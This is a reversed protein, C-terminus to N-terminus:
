GAGSTQGNAEAAASTSPGGNEENPDAAAAHVQELLQKQQALLEKELKDKARRRERALIARERVAYKSLYDVQSVPEQELEDVEDESELGIFDDLDEDDKPDESAMKEDPKAMRILTFLTLPEPEPSQMVILKYKKLRRKKEFKGGPDQIIGYLPSWLLGYMFVNNPDTVLTAEVKFLYNVVENGSVLEAKRTHPVPVQGDKKKKKETEQGEKECAGVIVFQGGGEEEEEYQADFVVWFGVRFRHLESRPFKFRLTPYKPCIFTGQEDILLGEASVITNHEPELAMQKAQEILEATEPGQEEAVIFRCIKKGAGTDFTNVWVEDAELEAFLKPLPGLVRKPDAILGFEPSSYFWGFTDSLCLCIEIMKHPDSDEGEVSCLEEGDETMQEHYYAIYHEHVSSHYADFLFKHGIPCNEFKAMHKEPWLGILVRTDKLKPCFIEKEGILCGELKLHVDLLQDDKKEVFADDDEEDDEGWTYYSTPRNARELNWPTEWVIKREDVAVGIFDHFLPILRLSPIDIGIEIWSFIPVNDLAQASLLAFQEEGSLPIEGFLETWCSAGYHRPPLVCITRVLNKDRCDTDHVKLSKEYDLVVRQRNATFYINDGYELSKEQRIIETNKLGCTNKCQFLNSKMIFLPSDKDRYVLHIIDGSYGRLSFASTVVFGNYIEGGRLIRGPICHNM